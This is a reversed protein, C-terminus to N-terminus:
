QEVAKLLNAIVGVCSLEQRFLQLLVTGVYLSQLYLHVYMFISNLIAISVKQPGRRNLIIKNM